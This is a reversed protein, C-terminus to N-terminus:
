EGEKLENLIDRVAHDWARQSDPLSALGVTRAAYRGPAAMLQARLTSAIARVRERFSDATVFEGRLRALELEAMEAEAATKRARAEEFDTPTDRDAKLRQRYWVPFSPWLLKRRGDKGVRVVEPPAKEAWQGAAQQTMGLWKAAQTLSVETENTV